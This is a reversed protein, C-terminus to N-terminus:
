ASSKIIKEFAKADLEGDAIQHFLTESWQETKKSDFHDFQYPPLVYPVAIHNHKHAVPRKGQCFAQAQETLSGEAIEVDLEGLGTVDSIWINKSDIDSSQTAVDILNELESVSGAIIAARHGFHLDRKSLQQALEALDVDAHTNLQNKLNKLYALLSSRSAASFCFLQPDCHNSQVPPAEKAPYEEVVLSAYSGGAGFSNILCRKPIAKGQDDLTTAWPELTKQLYFASKDLRLHPNIPDTNISPVLMRHQLQLIVKTLQSIGSAAELHGINSKVTSLACHHPNQKGFVKKLAVVEIPDGLASGNAAAEVYHIQESTVGARALTDNMLQAQQKPDPASYMQKGGGHKVCSGKIVAYVYDGDALAETLPKLLVAGAGEGPLMGDSKGFGRSLRDGSLLNALKLTQFKSPELILNVGGAVAMSCDQQLLSQCALHIATMSSSCASNIALSPGNLDFYHSIRNPIQWDTVNSKIAAHEVNSESWTSQNYMSGIFVGVGATQTAQYEALRQRSYGANEFTLWTVELMQKLEPSLNAAENEKLDFLVHDFGDVDNLFGGFFDDNAWSQNHTLADAWREKPAAQIASEGKSLQEWFQELTDAQPYRGAVGIIAIDDTQCQHNSLKNSCKDMVADQRLRLRSNEARLMNPSPKLHVAKVMSRNAISAITQSPNLFVSPTTPLNAHKASLDQRNEGNARFFTRLSEEYDAMLHDALQEISNHEFLLTRPLEGAGKELMQILNIQLISDIGYRDLSQHPDLQEIPINILSSICDQVWHFTQQKLDKLYKDSNSGIRDQRNLVAAPSSSTAELEIGFYAKLSESHEEILYRVLQDVTNHEFLLTRSLEGTAKELLQLLNIQLISDIGFRDLPSQTSLEEPAMNVLAAITDVVFTQCQDFLLQASNNQKGELSEHVTAAKQISVPQMPPLKLTARKVVTKAASNILGDSTAVIIQQGLEHYQKLPLAVQEYGLLRLLRQWSESSLAPSGPIRWHEDQYLWWGELLGFSLHTFISRDSIENIVLLGGRKLLSKTNQLSTRIDPTAHLVNTALVIDYQGLEFGQEECPKTIDLLATKLYPAESSFQTNAFNLFVQSLDTYCYEQINSTYPKLKEILGASTGGTGAGIELIRIKASSEALSKVAAIIRNQQAANFYDPVPNNKYINEVLTMSGKPFLVDTATEEGRLLNPLAKVCAEMLAVQAAISTDECWKQTSQRWGEWLESLPDIPQVIEGQGDILKYEKLRNLTEGLWRRYYPNENFCKGFAPTELVRQESLPSEVADLLQRAIIQLLQQYLTDTDQHHQPADGLNAQTLSWSQDNVLTTRSMVSITEDSEIGAIAMPKLLKLVGLQPVDASMLADLAQMGEAPEISGIGNTAMRAQINPDAVVGVSGWYSWNVVKVTTCTWHQTLAHALADTYVCGAAYNGQGAAKSFANMSSFFLILKLEPNAKPNFVRALNQSTLTKAQLAELFESEKMQELRVDKLVLGAHVVGQVAGCHELIQKRVQQLQSEDRADVQFYQPLPAHYQQCYKEQSSVRQQIDEDFPSRGLWVVKAQYHQILHQTLVQGLGGAGGLVVYLGEKEFGQVPATSEENPWKIPILRQSFWEGQRWALCEGSVRTEPFGTPLSAEESFPIDILEVNWETAEKALSGLLGQCASLSPDIIEQNSIQAVATTIVQLTFTQDTNIIKQLAKILRFLNLSPADPDANLWSDESGLQMDIPAVWVLRNFNPQAKLQRFIIETSETNLEFLQNATPYLIKLWGSLDSRNSIILTSDQSPQIIQSKNVQWAPVLYSMGEPLPMEESNTISQPTINTDPLARLGIPTSQLGKLSVALQGSHSYLNIHIKQDQETSSEDLEIWAWMNAECPAFVQVTEVSSPVRLELPRDNQLLLGLSAQLVSDMMGPHLVTEAKVDADPLSLKALVQQPQVWLHEVGRHGDGYQIGLQEFISYLGAGELGQQWGGSQMLQNIDIHYNESHAAALAISGTCHDVRNQGDMSFIRFDVQQENPSLVIDLSPNEKTYSYPRLWRIGHFVIQQEELSVEDLSTVVAARAMELYGVGPMIRRNLVQHDSFWSEEGSWHSSFRQELFNSINRELMSHLWRQPLPLSQMQQEALPAAPVALDTVWYRDQAFAYGPLSIRRLTSDEPYLRQWEIPLGQCWLELLKPYKRKELWAALALRMDEDQQFLALAPNDKTINGQYTAEGTEAFQILQDRLSEISESLFAARAEMADRGVQLTFAMNALWHKIDVSAEKPHQDLWHALRSAYARLREESKASIVFPLVGSFESDRVSSGPKLYEELVVHANAGGFSFSSIGARRPLVQGREDTYAEWERAEQLIFFPSKDLEIYPNLTECHLSKFLKKYKLQLIVKIVSAIGAALELHGINSKVSGVGCYNFQSDCVGKEDGLERFATKLGNIEIPDGLPTGTGHSEIYGISRPDINAQRYAAKIVEAQAKPNPATLSTAKGGHNEASGRILAYIHDGDAEAQRRKKLFIVGVGEGRVYGNAESSFAKSRGDLALMGAKSFSIHAEPAILTNVGGVFAMECDGSRIAQVARHLAILSSSCASEIPESPGHLDLFFSMRNPGVSPVMATNSYGEIPINAKAILSSYGTVGTGAFIGTSTGAIDKASYGADDLALWIYQMLLRQQPDMLQAEKPSIGFFFPDFNEIGAIFGGYKVNCKNAEQYPDGWYARWDWRDIPIESICDRSSELNRYFEDINEAEPFCGSVGIIAIEDKENSGFPKKSKGFSSFMARADKFKKQKFDQQKFKNGQKDPEVNTDRLVKLNQSILQETLLSSHEDNLFEIFHSLTPFEFFITPTLKVEWKKKIKNALTTLSISDFGYQSFESDPKIEEAPLKMQESILQILEKFLRSKLEEMQSNEHESENLQKGPARKKHQEVQNGSFNSILSEIKKADGYMVLVQSEDLAFSQILAQIGANNPMPIIGTSESMFKLTETSVQMGGNKWLPWNISLTRGFRKGEMVKRNRYEAYQDLFANATAYDSQGTNGVVGAGSSFLIFFDLEINTTAKDLNRTGQVKPLMVRRFVDENKSAFLGDETIGASHLIGNLHGQESMIQSITDQVKELQSIDLPLYRIDISGSRLDSLDKLSNQESRGTLYVTASQTSDAIARTFLRGLGGLGGTILYVGNDIWPAPTTLDIEPCPVWRKVRRQNNTYCIEQDKLPAENQIIEFIKNEDNFEIVQFNLSPMELQLSRLMAAFGNSLTENKPNYILLQILSRKNKEINIFLQVKALLELAQEQFNVAVNDEFNSLYEVSIDSDSQTLAVKQHSAEQLECGGFVILRREYYKGQGADKGNEEWAPRFLLTKPDVLPVPVTEVNLDLLRSTFGKLLVCAKGDSDFLDINLRMLDKSQDNDLQSDTRYIHAWMHTECNSIVQLRELAFPLYPQTISFTPYSENVKDDVMLGLAAQLASDMMSPHLYYDGLSAVESAPLVLEALVQNNGVQIGALGQYMPGHDFSMNRYTAYIQDAPIKFTSIRSRLESLESSEQFVSNGYVATGQSHIVWEEESFGTQSDIENSRIEFNIERSDEVKLEISVQRPKEEVILPRLWVINNFTPQENSSVLDGVALAIAARAMEIHAVGPFIKNGAVKHQELFKENGSFLTTYRQHSLDSLNKAIFPHLHNVVSETTASKQGGGQGRMSPEVWVDLQAFPYTPAHIRHAYPCYEQNLEQWSIEAGAIWASAISKLGQSDLTKPLEFVEKGSTESYWCNSPTEGSLWNDLTESLEESTKAIVILRHAFAERSVQLTYALDSVKLFTNKLTESLSEVYQVLSNKTRASVPFLLPINKEVSHNIDANKAVHDRVVLHVNTGSHGFSNLAALRPVGKESEWAILEANIKFASHKLKIRPNISVHHLLSPIQNNQMSLLVRILGVVGAAASAHGINAKTSGLLCYEEDQTFHKFARILAGAEVPDGLPTGTGHSEVYSIDKPNIDHQQYLSKILMEQSQGNPATIGNSAGDQNMGSACIVGYIPDHDIIAKHLPKLVVMGIAESLVIGDSSKDFTHCRGTPSLMDMQSLSILGQENLSAFVGGAIALESEGKQLSECALHIAVASSSCGTNVVLAPGKLDLFYSLRSAIIADSAGIFTEHFYGTPEAGVFIGVPRKKLSKPNYGADEIAKWSEQLVLRQHPNMSEADRPSINFFLPDFKDRNKLVGGWKCYTKGPKPEESYVDPKLIYRDGLEVVSDVGNKLNDWFEQVNDAGPFQGSMGIIAIELPADSDADPKTIPKVEVKGKFEEKLQELQQKAAEESIEESKFKKIINKFENNKM